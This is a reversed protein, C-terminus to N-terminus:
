VSDLEKIIRRIATGIHADHLYPYLTQCVWQSPIAANFLDWGFREDSKGMENYYKRRINYDSLHAQMKERIYNFHESKMKM